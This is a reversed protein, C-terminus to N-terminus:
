DYSKFEKNKPHNKYEVWTGGREQFYKEDDLLILFYNQILEYYDKKQKLSYTM